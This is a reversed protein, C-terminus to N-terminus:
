SLDGELVSVALKKALLDRACEDCFYGRKNIFLIALLNKASKTCERGSCRREKYNQYTDSQENSSVAKAFLNKGKSTTINM